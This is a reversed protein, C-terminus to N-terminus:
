AYGVLLPDRIFNRSLESASIRNILVSQAYLDTGFTCFCAHLTYMYELQAGMKCVVMPPQAHMRIYAHTSHICVQLVITRGLRLPTDM